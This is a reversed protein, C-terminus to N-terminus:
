RKTDRNEMDKIVVEYGNYYEIIWKKHADIIWFSFTEDCIDDLCKKLCNIQLKVDLISGDDWYIYVIDNDNKKSLFNVICKPLDDEDSYCDIL